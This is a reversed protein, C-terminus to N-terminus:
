NEGWSVREGPHNGTGGENQKYLSGGLTRACVQGCVSKQWVHAVTVEEGVVRTRRDRVPRALV